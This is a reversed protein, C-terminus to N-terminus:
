LLLLYSLAFLPVTFILVREPRYYKSFVRLIIGQTIAIWISFFAIFLGLDIQTFSFKEILHVQLFQLFFSFGFTMVFIMVFMPRLDNKSFAQRVNNISKFFHIHKKVTGEFTQPFKK